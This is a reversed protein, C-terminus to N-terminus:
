KMHQIPVESWILALFLECKDTAASQLAKSQIQGQVNLCSMLAMHPATQARSKVGCLCQVTMRGKPNEAAHLFLHIKDSLLWTTVRLLVSYKRDQFLKPEEMNEGM